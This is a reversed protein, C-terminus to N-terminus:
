LAEERHPAGAAERLDEPIFSRLLAINEVDERLDKGKPTEIVKPVNALAPDTMLARFGEEGIKGRGIHEHRDVRSGLDGKSDNLHLLLLRDLGVLADFDGSQALRQLALPTELAGPVTVITVREDAVSAEKLARLAGRLLGQGIEPNFRSQVIAVRRQSGNTSPEIRRIGTM